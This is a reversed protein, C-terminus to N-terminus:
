DGPEDYIYCGNLGSNAYKKAIREQRRSCGYDRPKLGTGGRKKICGIPSIISVLSVLSGRIALKDLKM